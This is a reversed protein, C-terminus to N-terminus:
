KTVIGLMVLCHTGRDCPLAAASRENKISINMFEKGRLESYHMLKILWSSFSVSDLVDPVVLNSRVNTGLAVLSNFDNGGHTQGSVDLRFKLGLTLHKGKKNTSIWCKRNRRWIWCFM